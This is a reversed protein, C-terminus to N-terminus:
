ADAWWEPQERIRVTQYPGEIPGAQAAMGLGCCGAASPNVSVERGDALVVNLTGKPRNWGASQIDDYRIRVVENKGPGPVCLVAAQEALIWLRGKTRGGPYIVLGAASSVTNVITRPEAKLFGGM